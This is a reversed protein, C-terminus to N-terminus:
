IGVEEIVRSWHGPATSGAAFTGLLEFVQDSFGGVNLIDEREAAQTTAYPQIDICVMKADPNRQKLKAWQKMTQTAEGKRGGAVTDVWSENDSVYIVLDAMAGESNLFELPASCNTGGQPLSALKQANTLVSDRPNLKVSVVRDKFPIVRALPNVRVMAAAVLAAIDVCRVASTSGKRYGTVPSHMSGSVDPFVYVKGDIEPVNVLAHDLADQLGAKVLEPVTGACNFYAAMLQYPLVRSKRVLEQNALREAILMTLAEDEFVGHRAFTNLNMRMMQWPAKRAIAKWDSPSLPLATLMEFPVDPVDLIQGKKFLEFSQVLKPLKELDYPRGILYAYLAARSENDPRPHVMKIVDAISPNSGVSGKFVVEDARNTLWQEVLRKPLSGLSTRGVAGSRMIQVFTRLMRANDIVRPFVEAFLFPSRVSLMATLLAPLDKMFAKERVYLATKAVFEPEVKAALEIVRDLQTDASAYFTGNLCGTAAYQSLAQKPEMLYARGGAENVTDAKPLLKGLYSKFLNKNAM